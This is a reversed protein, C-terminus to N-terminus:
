GIRDPDEHGAQVVESRTTPENGTAVRPDGTELSPTPAPPMAECAASCDTAEDAGAVAKTLIDFPLNLRLRAM